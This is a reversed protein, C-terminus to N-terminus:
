GWCWISSFSLFCLYGAATRLSVLAGEKAVGQNITKLSDRFRGRVWDRLLYRSALFALTAGVTSAFSVLLFGKAASWVLSRWGADAPRRRATLATVAVYVLFLDHRFRTPSDTCFRHSARAPM